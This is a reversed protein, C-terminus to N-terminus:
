YIIVFIQSMKRQSNYLNANWSNNYRLFLLLRALCALILWKISLSSVRTGRLIVVSALLFLLTSFHPWSPEGSLKKENGSVILPQLGPLLVAWGHSFDVWVNLSVPWLILWILDGLHHVFSIRPSPVACLGAQVYSFFFMTICQKKLMMWNNRGGIRKRFRHRPSTRHTAQAHILSQTQWDEAVTFFYGQRHRESWSAPCLGVHFLHKRGFNPLCPIRYM